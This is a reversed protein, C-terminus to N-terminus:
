TVNKALVSAEFRHQQESLEKTFWYYSLVATVFNAVVCGWFLGHLGFLMSGLYAIPVYCVFLRVVSLILASMPRHLANFSSNTLIIIGQLGYGIPVILLFLQIYDSVVEEKAFAEAIFPASLALVAFMALQFVMVFQLSIRYATKIRDFQNAGFNQSIFPPLSMSLALVLISAMSELRNGVGWAAVAEAGYTAVVATLVGGAIPTLMNAGAAPIGISLVGRAAHKFDTYNLLRPEILKRQYALLYLIWVVCVAWAICTAIAAGMIGFAPIPGFGFILIPDLLANIGGGAAMIISPTKTDGAARLVSNGVMPIALLVGSLYWVSMYDRIYPMLNDTAGMAYFIPEILLYGIFCLGSVLIVSLMLSGSAIAKAHESEGSGLFKGIVASAGIGLGINLSIVTFTVPFTFSIAALQETGLLSVFYTDVLSFTMLMIMGIIMPLTMSKLTSAIDGSTLDRPRRSVFNDSM